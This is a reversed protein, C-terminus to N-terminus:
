VVSKRDAPILKFLVSKPLDQESGGSFPQVLIQPDAGAVPTTWVYSLNIEEIIFADHTPRFRIDWNQTGPGYSILRGSLNM